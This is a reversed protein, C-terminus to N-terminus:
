IATVKYGLEEISKQMDSISVLSSDFTVFTKAKAYSTESKTVGPLDELTADINLSCSVCHMGMISFTVRNEQADSKVSKKKFMDFIKQLM